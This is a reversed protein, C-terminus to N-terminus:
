ANESCVNMAEVCEIILECFIYSKFPVLNELHLDPKVKAFFTDM